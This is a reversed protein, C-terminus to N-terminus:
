CKTDGKKLWAATVVVFSDEPELYIVDLRKNNIKKMARKRFPKIGPLNIEPEMITKKIYSEKIKREGMRKQAHPSLIVKKM